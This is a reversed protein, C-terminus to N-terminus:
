PMNMFTINANEAITTTAAMQNRIRFRAANTRPSYVLRARVSRTHPAFADGIVGAKEAGARTCALREVRLDHPALHADDAVVQVAVRYANGASVRVSQLDGGSMSGVGPELDPQAREGVADRLAVQEVQDGTTGLV